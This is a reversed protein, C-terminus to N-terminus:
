GDFGSRSDEGTRGSRFKVGFKYRGFGFIIEAFDKGVDVVPLAVNWDVFRRHIDDSRAKERAYADNFGVKV